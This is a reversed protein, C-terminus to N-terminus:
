NGGFVSAASAIFSSLESPLWIGPLALMALAALAMVTEFRGAPPFRRTEDDVRWAMPIAYRLVGIFAVGLGALFLGAVWPSNQDVASRLIMFESLFLAFPATGVLALLATLLTAGWLPSSRLTGGIARMDTTGQQRVIQGASIFAMTKGLSHALTHLLAAFAGFGGLGAGLTIVGMHELSSYALLRKLDHQVAIFAAATLISVLGAVVLIERGWGSGGTASEVIPLYRLICYLAANLLFGSFVASVPAPAQSHADPLWNHMPALGAKTGYGVVLFIFGAKLLLPDLFRSSALLNTWLLAQTGHLGAPPTSAAVLITGTFALAVGVSCMLLYKWMAELSSPSASICILFATLLTTAEIGVWMLGLNNSLLVLMM